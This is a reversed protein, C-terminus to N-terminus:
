ITSEKKNAQCDIKADEVGLNKMAVDQINMMQQKQDQDIKM